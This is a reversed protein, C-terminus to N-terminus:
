NKAKEGLGYEVLFEVEDRMKQAREEDAKEIVAMIERKVAGGYKVKMDVGVSMGAMEPLTINMLERLDRRLEVEYDEVGDIYVGLKELGVLWDGRRVKAEAREPPKGNLTDGLREGMESEQKYDMYVCWMGFGLFAFAGIFLGGIIQMLWMQIGGREILRKDKDYGINMFILISKYKISWPTHKLGFLFVASYPTRGERFSPHYGHIDCSCNLDTHITHGLHIQV